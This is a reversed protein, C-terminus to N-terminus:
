QGGPSIEEKRAQRRSSRSALVESAAIHLGTLPPQSKLSLLIDVWALENKPPTTIRQVEEIASSLHQLLDQLLPDDISPGSMELVDRMYDVWYENAYLHLSHIGGMVRSLRDTESYLSHFVEMGSLLCTTVAVCHSTIVKDERILLKSDPSSLYSYSNISPELLQSSHLSVFEKVSVHIFSFTFDRRQEILPACMDFLYLPVPEQIAKDGAAFTIASRLEAKSLPRKAFAIWGLISRFREISRCDFNALIRTVIREYSYGIM